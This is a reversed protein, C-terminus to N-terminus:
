DHPSAPAQVLIPAWGRVRLADKDQLMVQPEM